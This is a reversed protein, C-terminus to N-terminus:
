VTGATLSRKHDSLVAPRASTAASASRMRLMRLRAKTKREQIQEYAPNLNQYSTDIGASLLARM